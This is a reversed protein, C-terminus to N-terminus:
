MRARQRRLEDDPRAAQLPNANIDMTGPKTMQGMTPLVSFVKAKVILFFRSSHAGKQKLGDM